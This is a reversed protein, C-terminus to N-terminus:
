SGGKGAKQANKGNGKQQARNAGQGWFSQQPAQPQFSQLASNAYVPAACANAQAANQYLTPSAPYGGNANQLASGYFTFPYGAQSNSNQYAGQYAANDQRWRKKGQPQQPQHASKAKQSAYAAEMNSRARSLFSEINEDREASVCFLQGAASLKAFHQRMVCDCEVLTSVRESHGRSCLQMIYCLFSGGGGVSNLFGAVTGLLLCEFLFNLLQM